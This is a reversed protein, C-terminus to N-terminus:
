FEDAMPTEAVRQFLVPQRTFPLCIQEDRTVENDVKNAKHPVKERMKRNTKFLCATITTFVDEGQHTLPNPVLM